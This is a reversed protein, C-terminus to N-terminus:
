VRPILPVASSTFTWRATTKTLTIIYTGTATYTHTITGGVNVVPNGDGWDVTFANAFHKNLRVMQGGTTIEATLDIDQDKPLLGRNQWNASTTKLTTNTFTQKATSPNIALQPVEAETITGSIM